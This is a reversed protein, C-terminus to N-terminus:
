GEPHLARCAALLGQLRAAQRELTGAPNRHHAPNGPLLMLLWFIAFLVRFRALRGRQGQDFGLEDVLLDGDVLGRPWVTVHELLDAVEFAPDSVGCDEFDVVRCREGDWLVNGLNGDAQTFVREAPPGGLGDAGPGALWAVAAAHARETEVAVPPLPAAVWERLHALAEQSAYHRVPLEVRDLPVAHLARMAAALARVQEDSLPGSGLPEGPIRSMVVAPAGDVTRRELPAPALGPAVEHLLTLALWERDPEGKDWSAYRKTVSHDEFTLQHTTEVM